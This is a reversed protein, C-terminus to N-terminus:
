ALVIGKSLRDATFFKETHHLPIPTMGGEDDVVHDVLLPVLPTRVRVGGEEVDMTAVEAIGM